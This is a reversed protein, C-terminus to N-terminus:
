CRLAVRADKLRQLTKAHNTKETELQKLLDKNESQLASIQTFLGNSEVKEQSDVDCTDKEERKQFLSSIKRTLKGFPSKPSGANSEYCELENRPRKRSPSTEIDIQSARQQEIVKQLKANEEELQQLKRTAESFEIEDQRKRNEVMAIYEKKEDLNKQLSKIHSKQEKQKQQEDKIISAFEKEREQMHEQMHELQQKWSVAEDLMNEYDDLYNSAFQNAPVKNANNKM